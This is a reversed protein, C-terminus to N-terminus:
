WGRVVCKMGPNMEICVHNIQTAVIKWWCDNQSLGKDALRLFWNEAVDEFCMADVSEKILTNNEYHKNKWLLEFKTM